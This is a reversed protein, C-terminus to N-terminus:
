ILQDRYEVWCNGFKRRMRYDEWCVLGQNLNLKQDVMNKVIQAEHTNLFCVCCDCGLNLMTDHNATTPFKPKMYLISAKIQTLQDKYLTPNGNLQSVITSKFNRSEGVEVYAVIFKVNSQSPMEVNEHEDILVDM